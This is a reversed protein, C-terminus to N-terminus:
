VHRYVGEKQRNYQEIALARSLKGGATRPLQDWLLFEQPCEYSALYPKCRALMTEQGLRDDAVVACLIKEGGLGSKCGFVLCERIEPNAEKLVREVHGPDVNHGGRIIMDDSRGIIHLEGNRDLYGIDGTNLWGNCVKAATAEPDGCYGLMLSPTRVHIVGAEEAACPMGSAHMIRLEVGALPHGAGYSNERDYRQATIRPGAETAGYLNLVKAPYFVEEAEKMLRKDVPGGATYVLRLSTATDKPKATTLLQLLAPNVVVISAKEEVIRKIMTRPSVLPNKVILRSGACVAVLLEGVLTSSHTLTKAICFCDETVPKMYESISATNHLTGQHSWEIAKPKGSTGSSFLILAPKRSGSPYYQVREGAEGQWDGRGESWVQMQGELEGLLGEPRIGSLCVKRVDLEELMNRIRSGPLQPDILVATGGAELIAFLGVLYSASNECILAIRNHLASEDAQGLRGKLQLVRSTITDFTWNGWDDTVSLTRASENALLMDQILEV